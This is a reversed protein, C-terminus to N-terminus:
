APSTRGPLRVGARRAWASCRPFAGPGGPRALAPRRRHPCRRPHGALRRRRARRAPAALDHRRRRQARFGGARLRRPRGAALRLQRGGRRAGPRAAGAGAHCWLFAGTGLTLKAMGESWCRQGYLAAQQDGISAGIVARGGCARPDTVALRGATSTVPPLIPAPIGFLDLLAPDWASTALSFLMTRAAMSPETVHVGGSLNWTLWSNVDGFLLDGAAARRRAGPVSGLLWSLKAASFAPQLPLGTRARIEAEHGARRLEDCLGAARSDRWSIAPYVPRGSGREWVVFTETQAALGIGAVDAWSAGAQGLADAVAGLVSGLLEDADHEVWGPRPFSSAM